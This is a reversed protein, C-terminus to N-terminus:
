VVVEVPKLRRGRVQGSRRQVAAEFPVADAAQGTYLSVLWLRLAERIVSDAVEVDVNGLDPRFFALEVQEDRDVSSRLKGEGLQLRFCGPVRGRVKQPGQDLGHRVLDM